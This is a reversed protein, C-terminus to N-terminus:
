RTYSFWQNSHAGVRLRSQSITTRLYTKVRRLGSASRESVANTAPMVLILRLLKFAETMGSQVGPTLKKMHDKVDTFSLSSMSCNPFSAGLLNLHVRLLSPDFDDSYHKIAEDFERSFDESKAAKLLLAQM